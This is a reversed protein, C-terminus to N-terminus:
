TADLRVLPLLAGSEVDGLDEHVVVLADAEAFSPVSGSSQNACVVAVARGERTALRVRAFERRGPKHAIRGEIPIAEAAPVAVADGQLARLLPLGFLTFTLSASAPNGPLGLVVSRGRTGFTMPKGPKMAVKHFQLAVGVRTLADRVIDHDGVSVGGITVLVDAGALAAELASTARDMEDPITAGIRVVAGVARAAAAVFYGNSEPISGSRDPDGPARLENGTGVISVVPARSVLLTPRDLAAALAVHGPRLRTGRAIAVAGEAMDFGRTRVNELVRPRKEFRIRDGDRQVNEQMIVADAGRPMPAGTFIRKATGPELANDASGAASEGRVPLDFPGDAPLGAAAIAYGDMASHDFRPLPARAILDEALVRGSAAELPVREAPLVHAVSLLHGLAEDFSIM